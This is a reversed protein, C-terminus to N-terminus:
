AIAAARFTQDDGHGLKLDYATKMRETDDQPTHELRLVDTCNRMAARFGERSGIDEIVDSATGVWSASGNATLLYLESGTLTFTDRNETHLVYSRGSVGRWYVYERSSAKLNQIHYM